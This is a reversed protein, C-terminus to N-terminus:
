LVSINNGVHAFRAIAIDWCRTCSVNLPCEYDPCGAFPGCDYQRRNNIINVRNKIIGLLETEKTNRTLLYRINITLVMEDRNMM